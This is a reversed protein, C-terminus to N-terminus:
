FATKSSIAVLYRPPEGDVPLMSVKFGLGKFREGLQRELQHSGRKDELKDYVERSVPIDMEFGEGVEDKRKMVQGMVDNISQAVRVPVAKVEMELAITPLPWGEDSAEKFRLNRVKYGDFEKELQRIFQKQAEKSGELRGYLEPALNIIGGSFYRDKKQDEKLINVIGAYDSCGTEKKVERHMTIAITPFQRGKWPDPTDFKINGVMYGKFQKELREMVQKRDGKLEEYFEQTLSIVNTFDDADKNRMVQDKKIIDVIGSYGSCAGLMTIAVSQSPQGAAPNPIGRDSSTKRMIIALSHFPQEAAPHPIDLSIREVTYGKFDKGLQGIFQQQAEKSSELWTYFEPTLNISASFFGKDGYIRRIRPNDEYMAQNGKLIGAIQRYDSCATVMTIGISYFPWGKSPDPTELKMRGVKYGKFQKELQDILQAQADKSGDLRRYFEPALTVTTGFSGEKHMKRVEKLVNAIEGYNSCSEVEKHAM